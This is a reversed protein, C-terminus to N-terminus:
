GQLILGHAVVKAADDGGGSEGGGNGLLLDCDQEIAMGSAIPAIEAGVVQGGIIFCGARHALRVLGPM